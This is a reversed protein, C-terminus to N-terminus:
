GGGGDLRESVCGTGPETVEERWESWNGARSARARPLEWTGGVGGREWGFGM